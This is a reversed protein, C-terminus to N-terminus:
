GLVGAAYLVGLNEEGRWDRLRPHHSGLVIDTAGSETRGFCLIEKPEPLSLLIPSHTAVLVQANYASSLSQYVAEVARPHIGNEPEEILYTGTANPLYALLTLALFRLTGDSVLWSPVEVGSSYQLVLYRARDAEQTKVTISQVDYLVTQVHELWRQFRDQALADVVQPLNSGDPRYTQSGVLAPSPTRMALSNLTLEQVSGMLFKKAWIARPFKTEDEPLNALALKRPGLGFQTNWKGTESRFYDNGSSAVKNVVKRWGSPAHGGTMLTKIAPKDEPFLAVQQPHSARNLPRLWLTEGQVTIEHSTPDIGIRIEYRAHTWAGQSDKSTLADPLKAEIAVEFYDSKGLWTLEEVSRGRASVAEEAGLVLMDRILWVVDLFTSKGSANPGILIAFPPVDQQVSRLCRYNLAEIRTIM